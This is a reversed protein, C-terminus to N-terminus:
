DEVSIRLQSVSVLWIKVKTYLLVFYICEVNASVRAKKEINTTLNM